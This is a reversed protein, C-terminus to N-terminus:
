QAAPTLGCQTGSVCTKSSQACLLAPISVKVGKDENLEDSLDVIADPNVLRPRGRPGQEFPSITYCTLHDGAGTPADFQQLPDASHTATALTCLLRGQGIQVNQRAGFQDTLNVIRNAQRPQEGDIVYCQFVSLTPSGTGAGAGGGAHAVVASGAVLGVVVLALAVVLSRKM